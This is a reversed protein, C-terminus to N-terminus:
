WRSEEENCFWVKSEAKVTKFIEEKAKMKNFVRIKSNKAPISGPEVVYAPQGRRERINKKVCDGVM